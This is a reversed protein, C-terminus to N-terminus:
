FDGDAEYRGTPLTQAAQTRFYAIQARQAIDGFRQPRQQQTTAM